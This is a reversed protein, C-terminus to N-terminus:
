VICTSVRIEADSSQLPSPICCPTSLRRKPAESAESSAITNQETRIGEDDVSSSEDDDDDHDDDDIATRTVATESSNLNEKISEATRIINNLNSQASQIEDSSLSESNISKLRVAELSELSTKVDNAITNTNTTMENSSKRLLSWCPLLEREVKVESTEEKGKKTQRV